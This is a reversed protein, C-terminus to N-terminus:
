TFPGKEWGAMQVSSYQLHEHLQFQVALNDRSPNNGTLSHIPFGFFRLKPNLPLHRFSAYKQRRAPM